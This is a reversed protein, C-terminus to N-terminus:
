SCPSDRKKEHCSDIYGSNEISRVDKHGKKWSKKRGKKWKKKQMAGHRKEAVFSKLLSIWLFKSCKNPPYVTNVGLTPTFCKSTSSFCTKAYKWHLLLVCIYRTRSRWRSLMIFREVLTLSDQCFEVCFLCSIHFTKLSVLMHGQYSNWYWRPSLSNIKFKKYSIKELVKCFSALNGEDYWIENMLKNSLMSERHYM